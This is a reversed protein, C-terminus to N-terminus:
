EDEDDPENDPQEDPEEEVPEDPEEEVPEEITISTSAPEGRVDNVIPIVTITYTRGPSAGEILISTAQVTQKSGNIDVEFVAGAEQYNWTVKISKNAEDYEAQLAEVAAIPEEESENTVTVSKPESTQKTDKNIATVQITYTTNSETKSRTVN